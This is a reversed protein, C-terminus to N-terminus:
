IEAAVESFNNLMYATYAEYNKRRRALFRSIEDRFNNPSLDLTNNRSRLEADRPVSDLYGRVGDNRPVATISRIGKPVFCDLIMLYLNSRRFGGRLSLQPNSKKITHPTVTHLISM